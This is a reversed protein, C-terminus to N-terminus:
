RTEPSAAARPRFLVSVLISAGIIAGIIALSWVIPFKGDFAENLWVMKAGVFLL